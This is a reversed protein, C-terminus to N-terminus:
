QHHDRKHSSIIRAIRPKDFAMLSACILVFEFFIRDVLLPHQTLSFIMMGMVAVGCGLKVPDDLAWHKKLLRIVFVLILTLGLLGAEAAIQWYYNHANQPLLCLVEPAVRNGYDTSNRFFRGPGIGLLPYDRVMAEAIHWMHVRESFFFEPAIFQMREYFPAGFEGRPHTNLSLVGLLILLGFGVIVLTKSTRRHLAILISIFLIMFYVALGTRSASAALLFSYLLLLVSPAVKRGRTWKERELGTLVGIQLIVYAAFSHIDGFLFHYQVLSKQKIVINAACMAGFIAGQAILAYYLARANIRRVWDFLMIGAAWMVCVGVTVSPSFPNTTWIGELVSAPAPHQRVLGAILYMGVVCLPLWLRAAQRRSLGLVVAMVLFTASSFDQQPYQNFYLLVPYSVIFVITGIEPLAWALAFV